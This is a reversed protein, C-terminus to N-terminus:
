KRSGIITGDATVPYPISKIEGATNKPPKFSQTASSCELLCILKLDNILILDLSVPLQLRRNNHMLVGNEPCTSWTLRFTSM